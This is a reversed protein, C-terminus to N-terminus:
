KKLKDIGVGRLIAEIVFRRVSIGQRKALYKFQAFLKKGKKGIFVVNNGRRVIHKYPQPCFKFLWEPTLKWAM